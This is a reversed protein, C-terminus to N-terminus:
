SAILSSGVSSDDVVEVVNLTHAEVGDPDGGDDIVIRTTIM